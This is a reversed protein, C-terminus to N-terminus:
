HGPRVVWGELQKTGQSREFQEVGEVAPRWAVRDTNFQEYQPKLKTEMLTFDDVTGVRLISM